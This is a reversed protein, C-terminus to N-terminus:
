NGEKEVEVAESETTPPLDQTETVAVKEGDEETPKPTYPAIQDITEGKMLRHADKLAAELQSDESLSKLWRRRNEEKREEKTLADYAAQDKKRQEKEEKTLPEPDPLKVQHNPMLGVHDIREGGPTFYRAITIYVGSADNLHFLTQVSGKGFTKDGVLLARGRDRLAGSLIESASATGENVLIVLPLDTKVGAKATYKENAVAVRGRTELIPGDNLFFDCIDTAAQLLGGGNNRLDIVLAKVKKALLEDLAKEFDQTTTAIFQSIRIYGVEKDQPLLTSKVSELMIEERTMPMELLEDEGERRVWVTVKTGPEGRLKRVVETLKQGVVVEDNVKIIQDNPRFGAHWAPTDDTPSVAIIQGDRESVTLGIGGYKGETNLEEDELETPTVFRTYPDNFSNVLGRLAGHVKAREDVDSNEGDVQYKEILSKAQKLLWLDEASFPSIQEWTVAFASSAVCLAAATTLILSKLKM